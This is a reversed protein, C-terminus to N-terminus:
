IGKKEISFEAENLYKQESNCSNCYATEETDQYEKIPLNNYIENVNVWVKIDVDSSSCDKCVLMTKNKM